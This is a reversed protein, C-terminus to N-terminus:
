ADDERGKKASSKKSDSPSHTKSKRKKSIDKIGHTKLLDVTSELRTQLHALVEFAHEQNDPLGFKMDHVIRKIRELWKLSIIEKMEKITPRERGHDFYQAEDNEHEKLEEILEDIDENYKATMFPNEDIKARLAACHEDVKEMNVHGNGGYFRHTKRKRMTKRKAYKTRKAM